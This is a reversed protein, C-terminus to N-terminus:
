QWPSFSVPRLLQTHFSKVMPAVQPPTLTLIYCAFSQPPTRAKAIAERWEPAGRAAERAEICAAASPYRWLEHVVNLEGFDSYCFLVLKGHADRAVKSPLGREFAARLQPVPNYGLILRYTRLEYSAPQGAVLPSSFSAAPVAGAAKHCEAAELFIASHQQTVGASRSAIVYDQWERSALMRARTEARHEMNRYCYVHTVRNLQGGTDATFMARFGPNLRMRLDIAAASLELYTDQGVPALDYTRFEWLPQPVAAGASFSRAERALGLSQRALGRALRM